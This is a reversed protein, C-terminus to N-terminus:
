KYVYMQIKTVTTLLRDGEGAQVTMLVQETEIVEERM